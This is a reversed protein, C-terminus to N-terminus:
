EAPLEVDQRGSVAAVNTETARRFQELTSTGGTVLAFIFSKDDQDIEDIYLVDDRREAQNEPVPHVEPEIAVQMVLTDMFVMMEALQKDDGVIESMESEVGAVGTGKDVAKKVINHLANPLKGTAILMQM